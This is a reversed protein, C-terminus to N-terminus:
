RGMIYDSLFSIALLILVIPGLVFFVVGILTALCNVDQDLKSM